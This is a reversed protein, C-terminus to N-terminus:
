SNPVKKFEVRRNLAWGESNDRHSLPRYPGYGKTKLLSPDIDFTDVLYRKIAEAREESLKLNKELPGRRDTHGEILLASQKEGPGSRENKLATGVAELEPRFEERIECSWEDFLIRRQIAERVEVKRHITPEPAMLGREFLNRIDAARIPKDQEYERLMTRARQLLMRSDPDEGLALARQYERIAMGLQREQLYLDALNVHAERAGPCLRVIHELYFVRDDAGVQRDASDLMKEVNEHDCQARPGTILLLSQLHDRIFRYATGKQGPLGCKETLKRLCLEAIARNSTVLNGLDRAMFESEKMTRCFENFFGNVKDATTQAQAPCVSVLTLAMVMLLVIAANVRKM